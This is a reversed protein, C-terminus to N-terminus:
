GPKILENIASIRLESNKLEVKLNSIIQDKKALARKVKAYIQELEEEHMHKIKYIEEEHVKRSKQIESEFKQTIKELTRTHEQTLTLNQNQLELAHQKQLHNQNNVQDRCEKSKNELEKKLLNIENELDTVKAERERVDMQFRKTLEAMKMELEKIAYSEERQQNEAVHSFQSHLLLERRDRELLDRKHKELLKQIESEYHEQVLKIEFQLKGQYGERMKQVEVVKNELEQKGDREQELLTENAKLKKNLKNLERRLMSCEEKQQELAKKHIESAKNLREEALDLQKKHETQLAQISKSSDVLKERLSLMKLEHLRKKDEESM